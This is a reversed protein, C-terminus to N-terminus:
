GAVRLLWNQLGMMEIQGLQEEHEDIHEQEERALDSFLQFTVSDFRDLAERAAEEYALSAEIETGLNARLLDLWDGGSPRPVIATPASPGVGVGGELFALRALLREAHKSEDSYTDTLLDALKGYGENAAFAAQSQYSQAAQYEAAIREQLLTIITPDGQM